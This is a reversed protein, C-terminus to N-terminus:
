SGGVRQKREYDAIANVYAIVANVEALRKSTLDNLATAVNYNNSMGVDFRVQEAAYNRDSAERAARAALLQQYSNQVALGASTVDTAVTLEQVKLNAENQQYTIQAQALAAKSAAMGLPYTFTAGVIWTPQEFTVIQGLADGVGGTSLLTRSQTIRDYSFTDGGQGQLNYSATVNLTPLTQNKRLQLTFASSELTKRQQELDTRQSLATQIAKPIDVPVEALSPPQETPNITQTYLPDDKSAVLLRKLALESSQWTIFANLLAQKNSEVTAENQVIDIPAMTGIEVKTRNDNLLRQSLDLTLKQIEYQEIARRLAWYAIRVNAKTSEVTQLLQIDTIQRQITQTRITNRNNDIAFNALLPQTYQFRTNAGLNPNRLQTPQNNTARNGGFTAAYNGGKWEVQQSFTTTYTQTNTLVTTIVQTADTNPASAHQENFSQQFVPKFTARTQLLNYDQIIPNLKAVKLDLNNELAIEIAQDLTMDHLSAGDPVPPRAQGVVYRDVELQTPAAPSTQPTQPTQAAPARPPAAQPPQQAAVGATLGAIAVGVAWVKGDL